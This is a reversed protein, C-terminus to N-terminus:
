NNTNPGANATSGQSDLRDILGQLVNRARPDQEHALQQQYFAHTRGRDQAWYMAYYARVRQDTDYHQRDGHTLQEYIYDAARQSDQAPVNGTSAAVNLTLTSALMNVDPDNPFVKLGDRIWNLAYEDEILHALDMRALWEEKTIPSKTPQDLLQKLAEDIAEESDIDDIMPEGDADFYGEPIVREWMYTRLEPDEEDTILSAIEDRLLEESALYDILDARQTPNAAQYIAAYSGYKELLEALQEEDFLLADPFEGAMEYGEEPHINLQPGIPLQPAPPLPQAISPEEPTESRTDVTPSPQASQETFTGGPATAGEPSLDLQGTTTDTAVEGQGTGGDQWLVLTGIAAVVAILGMAMLAIRTQRNM